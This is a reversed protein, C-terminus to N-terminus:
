VLDCKWFPAEFLLFNCAIGFISMVGIRQPNDVGGITHETDNLKQDRQSIRESCYRLDIPGLKM